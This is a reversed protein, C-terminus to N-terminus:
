CRSFDGAPEGSLFVARVRFDDDFVIVDADKGPELSGKVRDLGIVAAPTLSSMRVAVHLPVGVSMVLNKVADIPTLLSSALTGDPLRPAGDIVTINQGLLMAIQEKGLGAASAADTVISIRSAGKVGIAMQLVAPHIHVNDAILEATVDSSALVAGVAGPERHNLATMANFLHTAHRQGADFGRLAEDYTCLTHGIAPVVGAADLRRVIDLAGELEPAVTMIRLCGSTEELIEDLLEPDPDRCCAPPIAGLRRHNIFPGEIYLGLMRAGGTEANVWPLLRGMLGPRYLLTALFGTAGFQLMRRAMQPFAEGPGATMDVGLAGHVHLDILGPAVYCGDARFVNSPDSPPDDIGPTPDPGTIVEAIKGGSIHLEGPVCAGPLVLRGGVIRKKTL